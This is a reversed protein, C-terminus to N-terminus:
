FDSFLFISVGISPRGFTFQSITKRSKKNSIKPREENLEWAFAFV